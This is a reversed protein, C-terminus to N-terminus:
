FCRGISRNGACSGTWMPTSAFGPARVYSHKATHLAIQLLNDEPALLRAASGPISISRALLEEAGPEQDPRIWRGAVAAV